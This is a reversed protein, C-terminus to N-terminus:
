GDKVLSARLAAAVSADLGADILPGLPSGHSADLDDLCTQMAAAPADLLVSPLLEVLSSLDPVVRGELEDGEAADGPRPLAALGRASALLAPMNAATAAYDEVILPRPVEIATLLLAVLVGTRDKGAVCHVLTGRPQQAIHELAHGLATANGRIGDAYMRGLEDATRPLAAPDDALGLATPLAGFTVSTRLRETRRPLQAVGYLREEDDSRLDVVLGVDHLIAEVERPQVVSLDDSRYLKRSRIVTGRLTPIGGLERLNVPRARLPRDASVPQASV